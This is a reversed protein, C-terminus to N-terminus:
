ANERYFPNPDDIVVGINQAAYQRVFEFFESFQERNLVDREGAENRTTTRKARQGIMPRDCAGFYQECFFEHLEEKEREGRLGVHEMIPPYAVAFLAANQRLTRAPVYPEIVVQVEKGPWSTLAFALLNAGIRERGQPPLIFRQRKSM